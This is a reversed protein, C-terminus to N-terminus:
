TKKLLRRVLADIDVKKKSTSLPVDSSQFIVDPLISSAEQLMQEVDVLSPEGVTVKQESSYKDQLLQEELISKSDIVNDQDLPEGVTSGSNVIKSKKKVPSHDSHDTSSIQDSM